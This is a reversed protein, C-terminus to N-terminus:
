RVDPVEGQRVGTIDEAETHHHRHHHRHETIDATDQHHDATLDDEVEEAIIIDEAQRDDEALAEEQHIDEEASAEAEAQIHHIAAEAAVRTAEAM